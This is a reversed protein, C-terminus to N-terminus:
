ARHSADGDAAGRQAAILELLTELRPNGHSILHGNLVYAPVGFVSAPPAQGDDLDILKVRIDPVRARVAAATRRARECGPCEALLYITLTTLNHM